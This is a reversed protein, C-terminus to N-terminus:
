RIQLIAPHYIDKLQPTIYTKFLRDMKDTQDSYINISYSEHYETGVYLNKLTTSTSTITTSCQMVLDTNESLEAGVRKQVLDPLKKLREEDCIIETFGKNFYYQSMRNPYELIVISDNNNIFGHCSVINMVIDPIGIGFLNNYDMDAHKHLYSNDVKIESLRSNLTCLYDICVYKEVM